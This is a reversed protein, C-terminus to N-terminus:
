RTVIDFAIIEKGTELFSFNPDSSPLMRAPQNPLFRTKIIEGKENLFFLNEGSSAVFYKGSFFTLNYIADVVLDV